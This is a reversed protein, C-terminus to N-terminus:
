KGKFLPKRKENFAKVGEKYDESNGAIEQCYMEYELMTELDSHFSKNLMRKILAIAKTPAAAYRDTYSKVANDLEAMPVVKNIMGWEHAQKASIKEALTALEFARASGVLRPLFYSSGSDLVLGVNVFVEILSAEECAVIIDCALAMSCGAGAAVGNLRCVIPKPMNRMRRIIPNYRKQLSESLNRNQGAIAKLDQGSCFAKGAGTLVIVRINEDQEAKKLADQFEYSIEDNFANFVEPRNFTITCVGEKVEYLLTNFM